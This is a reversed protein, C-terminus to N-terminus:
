LDDLNIMEDSNWSIVSQQEQWSKAASIPTEKEGSAEDLCEALDTEWQVSKCARRYTDYDVARLGESIMERLKGLLLKGSGMIKLFQEAFGPTWFVVVACTRDVMRVDFEKSFVDDSDHLIRKVKGATAGAEFGLLFVLNDTSVRRSSSTWIRIDEASSDGYDSVPVFNNVHHQVFPSLPSNDSEHVEPNIKLISHLAVFLQCLKLVYHGQVNVNGSEQDPIEMDIPASLRKKLYSISGSLNSSTEFPKCKTLLHNTDLILPFVLLLSSCFENMTLPLPALFKSYISAFDNFSNHAVVPKQSTSILDIVERFGRISRNQEEEMNRLEDELLNKDEESSTLIVRLVQMDGGKVPARLPVVDAFGKLMELVLLVQRESCVDISLCPRSGYKESGAIVKRLSNILADDTRNSDKCVNRWNKVRSKIRESFVSDAVSHVPSSQAGNDISRLNGMRVIAASEQARSLYSIGERAMSTLHSSQCSFGYSPMGIKLEDRPFLHFNFPHAILKSDKVSFPCVAFQLIQYREASRKAKLYAIEETDVPLIKQWPSSYRGTRQMSVAVYDSNFILTKIEALAEAFNAKTVQKIPWQRSVLRRRDATQLANSLSSKYQM